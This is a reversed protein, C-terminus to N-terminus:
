SRRLGGCGCGASLEDLILDSLPLGSRSAAHVLRLRPRAINRAAFEAAQKALAEKPEIGVAYCRGDGGIADVTWVYRNDPDRQLREVWLSLEGLEATACNCIGGKRDDEWEIEKM